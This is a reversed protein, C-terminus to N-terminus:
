TSVAHLLILLYLVVALYDENTSRFYPHMSKDEIFVCKSRDVSPDYVMRAPTLHEVVWSAARFVIKKAYVM